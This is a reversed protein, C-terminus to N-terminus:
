LVGRYVRWKIQQVIDHIVQSDTGGYKDDSLLFLNKGPIFDNYIYIELKEKLDNAYKDDALYGLHEVLIESRDLCRVHFDPSKIIFKGLGLFGPRPNRFEMLSDYRQPVWQHIFENLWLCEGKSRVRTGDEAYIEQKPFPMTNRPYDEDAWDWLERICEDFIFDSKVNKLCPSIYCELSHLDYPRYKDIFDLMLDRNFALADALAARLQENKAERVKDSNAKGLYCSSTDGHTTRKKQYYYNGNVKKRYVPVPKDMRSTCTRDLFEAIRDLENSMMETLLDMDMGKQM